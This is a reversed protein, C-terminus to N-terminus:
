PFVQVHPTYRAGHVWENNLSNFLSGGLANDYSNGQHGSGPQQVDRADAERCHLNYSCIKNETVAEPYATDLHTQSSRAM